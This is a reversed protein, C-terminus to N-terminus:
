FPLNEVKVLRWGSPVIKAPTNSLPNVALVYRGNRGTFRYLECKGNGRDLVFLDGEVLEDVDDVLEDRGLYEVENTLANFKVTWTSDDSVRLCKLNVYKKGKGWRQLKYVDDGGIRRFKDGPELSVVQRREVGPKSSSSRKESMKVVEM